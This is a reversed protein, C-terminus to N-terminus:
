ATRCQRQARRWGLLILGGVLLLAAPSPEPITSSIWPTFATVRGFASMDGYDANASGDLAVVASIVGALYVQGNITIFVAGGSDGSTVCGELALPTTDGFQGDTPVLPNDFDSGIVLSPNGFDGDIMNQFAREQGDLHNQGTAGTGTIGFGVFTGLQGSESSGTYLTAPTVGTVSTTLHVLGLDSGAFANGNWGPNTILQNGTYSVGNITFTGSNAALFMHAATLVWDPAVLTACGTYGWNNVFLGVSAYDPSTALNLYGSDPQDDRITSARAPFVGLIIIVVVLRSWGDPRCSRAFKGRLKAIRKSRNGTSQM